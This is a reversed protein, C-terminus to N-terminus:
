FFPKRKYVIKLFHEHSTDFEGLFKNWIRELEYYEEPFFFKISPDFEDLKIRRLVDVCDRYHDYKENIYMSRTISRFRKKALQKAKSLAIGVELLSFYLDSATETGTTILFMSKYHNITQVIPDFCKEARTRYVNFYKDDNQTSSKKM